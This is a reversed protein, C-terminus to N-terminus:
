YLEPRDPGDYPEAGLKKGSNPTVNLLETEKTTPAKIFRHYRGMWYDRLFGTPERVARGGSGGDYNMAYRSGVVVSSERPSIAKTGGIYPVYGPEPHLDDRFSHTYSYDTCDLTWERLHKVARDVECDNGTIAGYAFNFWAVHEVRKMEYTREISRLYIAKLYPDDLYRILTYYSRFALNDDWPAISEPPFGNKQRVIHDQYRFSLLENFGDEYLKEGTMKYATKAFAMAEMANLGKDVWGYPRLLYEPNWKGWRTSEGDMDIYVWDNEIIYKAVRALHEEAM